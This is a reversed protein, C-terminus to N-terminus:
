DQKCSGDNVPEKFLAALEVTSDETSVAPITEVKVPQKKPQLLACIKENGDADYYM